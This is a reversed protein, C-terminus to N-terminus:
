GVLFPLEIIDRLGLELSWSWFSLIANPRTLGLALEFLLHQLLERLINPRQLLLIGLLVLMPSTRTQRTSTTSPTAATSRASKSATTTKHWSYSILMQTECKRSVILLFSPSSLPVCVEDSM